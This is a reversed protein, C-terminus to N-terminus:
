GRSEGAGSPTDGGEALWAQAEGLTAFFQHGHPNAIRRTQAAVLARSLVIAARPRYHAALQDLVSTLHAVIEGSQVEMASLDVLWRPKSPQSALTRAAEGLTKGYAVATPLDWFGRLTATLMGAPRDVTIEYPPPSAM